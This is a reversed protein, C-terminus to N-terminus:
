DTIHFVKEGPVVLGLDDRAINMQREPDDSHEVADQLDANVQTQFAIQRELETKQEQAEAIQGGMDLLMLSLGIMLALIVIKTVLGAKKIRM